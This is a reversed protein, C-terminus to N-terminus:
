LEICRRLCEVKLPAQAAQNGELIAILLREVFVNDLARGKGDWSIKTGADKLVAVFEKCTFQAGQDNNFIEPKAVKLAQRLTDVCFGSDMSNSLEWAIVFRSYWDLIAVLYLYGGRVPIYTIDTSWVQNPRVISLGKLLYPFRESPKGRQSLHPKQYIAELCMLRMLRAAHKRNIGMAFAMRRSGYFPHQLHEEDIRRMLLLNEPSEPALQYYFTSRPLGLLECQRSVPLETNLDIM